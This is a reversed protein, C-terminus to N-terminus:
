GSLVAFCLLCGLTQSPTRLPTRREARSGGGSRIQRITRRQQV